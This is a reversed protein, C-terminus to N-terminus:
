DDKGNRGGEMEDFMNALIDDLAALAFKLAGKNDGRAMIDWAKTVSGSARRLRKELRKQKSM